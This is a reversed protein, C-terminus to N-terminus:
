FYHSRMVQCNIRANEITHEYQRWNEIAVQEDRHVLDGLWQVVKQIAAM